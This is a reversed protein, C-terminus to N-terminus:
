NPVVKLGDPPPLSGFTFPVFPGDVSLGGDRFAVLVTGTMPDSTLDIRCMVTTAAVPQVPHTTTVGDRTYSCHTITYAGHRVEVPDSILFAAEALIPAFGLLSVLFTAIFKM